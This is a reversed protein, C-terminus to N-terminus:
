RLPLRYREEVEAVFAEVAPAHAALAAALPSALEGLSRELERAAGGVRDLYGASALRPAEGIM